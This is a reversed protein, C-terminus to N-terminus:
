ERSFDRSHAPQNEVVVQHIALGLLTCYLANPRSDIM